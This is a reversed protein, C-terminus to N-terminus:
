TTRKTFRLVSFGFILVGFAALAAVQPVLDPLGAGKMMISRVIMMFYRMPNLLTVYQLWTPMNSIPTFFGSTLMAFISFFWAFFMAQQQTTTITSFFMGIGLTTLLYLLSLAFLLLPSGVFPIRFWLVGITLAIILEILGLIAFASIKGMLLTTGSIPTALLQELTGIERERVIAMSTLIVTIMTLLTAVIGPVMYYVSESEPNYLLKHHLEVPMRLNTINQSFRRAIQGAYGLGTRAANADAGDAILGIRVDGGTILRESFDEPLIMAMEASGSKFRENLEWLPPQVAGSLNDEPVFFGGAKMDEVIERSLRSRDYDYVDLAIDKVDINVAYGLLLIQVIPVAFIIRLMNRDRFVQLFEKKILGVYARLM